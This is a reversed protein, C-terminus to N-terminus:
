YRQLKGIAAYHLVRLLHLEEKLYQSRLNGIFEWIGIWISRLWRFDATPISSVSPLTCQLAWNFVAQSNLVNLLQNCALRRKLIFAHSETCHRVTYVFTVETSSKWFNWIKIQFLYDANRSEDEWKNVKTFKCLLTRFRLCWYFSRALFKSHSRLFKSFNRQFNRM